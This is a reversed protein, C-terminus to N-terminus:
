FLYQKRVKVLSIVKFFFQRYKVRTERTHLAQRNNFDAGRSSGVMKLGESTATLNEAAVATWGRSGKIHVSLLYVEQLPLMEYINM